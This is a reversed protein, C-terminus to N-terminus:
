QLSVIEGSSITLLQGENDIWLTIATPNYVLKGDASFRLRHYAEVYDVIAINTAYWIDERGGMKEAFREIVQWNDHEEFEYAHGWLYFLKAGFRGTEAIFRDCLADLEPDAHHCTPHFICWNNMLDFRHTANVTRCYAIGCDRLIDAIKESYTGFPYAAGRVIGGFTHELNERDAIIEHIVQDYPIDTLSPHTLCHVAVEHNPNSYLEKGKSLPLRRHVQGKPWITGEEAWLGSNLNFTAKIGHADLIQILREDQEVGDDYSLTLAKPKGGPFRMKLM